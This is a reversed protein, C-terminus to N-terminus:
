TDRPRPARVRFEERRGRVLEAISRAAAVPPDHEWVRVPLWGAARL